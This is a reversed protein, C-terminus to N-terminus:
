VPSPAVSEWTIAYKRPQLVKKGDAMPKYGTLAGKRMTYVKGISVLTVIGDAYFLEAAAQQQRFWEEFIRNSSSDAQLSYNQVTPVFVFGASMKGDVGMLIEAPNVADTDFIDDAAFGQLQVPTPFVGPITLAIIANASTISSM